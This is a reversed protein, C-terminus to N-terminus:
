SAKPAKRKAQKKAKALKARQKATAKFVAKPKDDRAQVKVAGPQTQELTATASPAAAAPAIVAASIIAAVTARM